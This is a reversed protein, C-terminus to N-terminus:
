QPSQMHPLYMFVWGACIAKALHGSPDEESERCDRGVEQDKFMTRVEHAKQRKCQKRRTGQHMEEVVAAVATM